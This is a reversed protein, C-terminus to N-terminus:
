NNNFYNDTFIIPLINKSEIELTACAWSLGAGFGTIFIKSQSNVKENNLHDAFLLPISNSSNNGFKQISILLKEFPMKTKRSIQKLMYLNAQHLAFYDFTELNENTFLLFENIWNPVDKISFDFVQMGKMHTNYDSRVIGDSWPEEIYNMGKNRFAGAPTVISKFKSGNSKFGFKLSESDEKRNLLVASGSDGFLMIMTRDQPSITKHSTDATIVLAKSKISNKLIAAATHLGYVFGSCALNIDLCIVDEELGLRHHLVFATSPTRYDPKQSVFILVGIEKRDVLLKDFLNVAAEYGLDSATQKSHSRYIQQVGSLESFKKISDEEFIGKFSDVSIAETPLAVSVGKIEINQIESIRM